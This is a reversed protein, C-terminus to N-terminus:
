KDDESALAAIAKNLEALFQTPSRWGKITTVLVGRRSWIGVLPLRGRALLGKVRRFEGERDQEHILRVTIFRHRLLKAVEADVYTYRDMRYCDASWFARLDVLLPKRERRALSRAESLTVHRWQIPEVARPRSMDIKRAQEFRASGSDLVKDWHKAVRARARVLDDLSLWEAPSASVGLKKGPGVKLTFRLGDFFRGEDFASLGFMRLPEVPLKEAFVCWLDEDGDFAGDLDGDRVFVRYAKEDIKVAGELFCRGSVFISTGRDSAALYSVDLQLDHGSSRVTLGRVTGGISVVDEAVRSWPTIAHKEDDALKGDANTDAAILDPYESKESSRGVVIAMATKGVTLTAFIPSLIGEAGLGEPGTASITLGRSALGFPAPHDDDVRVIRGAIEIPEQAALPAALSLISLVLVVAQGKSM